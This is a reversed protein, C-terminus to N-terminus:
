DAAPKGALEAAFGLRWSGYQPSWTLDRRARTNDAGRLRTMFAAGWGGAAVRAVVTPVRQPAPAGLLAAVAPLWDALEAPEDDVVNVAGKVEPHALATLVALAADRSHTFSFTGSGDGVVPMKRARIQRITSGNDRDYATGPGYLHGFRLVLGDAAATLRELSKLADLTKAFQRPPDAWLPEDETALGRGAPDYAYALGQVLFRGAGADWAAEMLTTTGETRLRNTVAFDREMRRPDIEAPIATLLHVVADPKAERVVAGLAGRDLADVAVTRVGSTGGSRDPGPNRSLAVVEHGATTLLPVLQRGIVGTAGAVVVRM